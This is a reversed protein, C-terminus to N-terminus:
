FHSADFRFEGRQAPLGGMRKIEAGAGTNSARVLSILANDIRQLYFVPVYFGDQHYESSVIEMSTLLIVLANSYSGPTSHRSTAQSISNGALTSM